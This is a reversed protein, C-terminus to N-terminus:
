LDFRIKIFNRYRGTPLCQAIVAVLVGIDAVREGKIRGIHRLLIGAPQIQARKGQCFLLKGHVAIQIKFPDIGAKIHPDVAQKSPVALNGVTGTLKENRGEQLFAFVLQAYQNDFPAKATIHFVLVLQAHATNETIYVDQQPGPVM